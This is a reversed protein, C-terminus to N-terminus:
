PGTDGKRHLDSCAPSVLTLRQQVEPLKGVAASSARNSSAKEPLCQITYKGTVSVSLDIAVLYRTM